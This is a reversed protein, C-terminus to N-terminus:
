SINKGKVVVHLHVDETLTYDGDDSTRYITITSSSSGVAGNEQYHGDSNESTKPILRQGNWYLELNNRGVTYTTPLTISYGNTITTGSEIVIDAQKQLFNSKKIANDDEGWVATGNSSWKLFQGSSGGSPIHKNGATTPHVYNNANEDIGDLKTKDVSSMYGDESSTANSTIVDLLNFGDFLGDNVISYGYYIGQNTTTGSLMYFAKFDTFYETVVLLGKPNTTKYTQDTAGKYYVKCGEPLLYIGASLNWIRVETNTIKTAPINKLLNHFTIKKDLGNIIDIIHLFDNDNPNTHELLDSIKIGNEEM